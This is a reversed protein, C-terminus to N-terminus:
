ISAHKGPLPTHRGRQIRTEGLERGGLRGKGKVSCKALVLLASGHVGQPASRKGGAGLHRSWAWPGCVGHHGHAQASVLAKAASATIDTHRRSPGAGIQNRAQPNRREHKDGLLVSRCNRNVAVHEGPVLLAWNLTVSHSTRRGQGGQRRQPDTLQCMRLSLHPPSVSLFRPGSAKQGQPDQAGLEAKSSLSDPTIEPLSFGRGLVAPTSGLLALQQVLSFLGKFFFLRENSFYHM